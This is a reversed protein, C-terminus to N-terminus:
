LEEEKGYIEVARDGAFIEIMDHLSYVLQKAEQIKETTVPFDKSSLDDLCKAVEVLRKAVLMRDEDNLWMTKLKSNM